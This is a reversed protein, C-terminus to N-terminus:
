RPLCLPLSALRRALGGPRAPAELPPAPAGSRRALVGRGEGGGRAWRSTTSQASSTPAGRSARAARRPCPWTSWRRRRGGATTACGCRCPRRRWAVADRFGRPWGAAGVGERRVAHRSTYDAPGRLGGPSFPPPAARLVLAALRGATGPSGRSNRSARLRSAGGRCPKSGGRLMVGGLGGGRWLGLPIGAPLIGLDRGWRSFGSQMLDGHLGGGRWPLLGPQSCGQWAGLCALFDTGPGAGCGGGVGCGVSLPWLSRSTNCLLKIRYWFFLLPGLESAGKWHSNCLTWRAGPGPLCAAWM